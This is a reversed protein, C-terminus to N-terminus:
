WPFNSHFYLTHTHSFFLPDWKNPENINIPQLKSYHSLNTAAQNQLKTIQERNTRQLKQIQKTAREKTWACNANPIQYEYNTNTFRQNKPKYKHSLTIQIYKLNPNTLTGRSTSPGARHASLTTLQCIFFNHLINLM